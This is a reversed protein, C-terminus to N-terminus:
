QTEMRRQQFDNVQALIQIIDNNERAIELNLKELQQINLQYKKIHEIAAELIASKNNRHSPL